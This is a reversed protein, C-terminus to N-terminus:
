NNTAALGPGVGGLAAAVVVAPYFGLYPAPALVGPLLWRAFAALSTAVIAWGYGSLSGRLSPRATPNDGNGMFGTL